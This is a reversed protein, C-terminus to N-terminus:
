HLKLNKQNVVANLNSNARLTILEQCINAIIKKFDKGVGLLLRLSICVNFNGEDYKNQDIVYGGLEYRCEDFQFVFGINIFRLTACDKDNSTLQKVDIYLYNKAPSTM